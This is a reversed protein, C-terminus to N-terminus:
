SIAKPNKPATSRPQKPTSPTRKEIKIIKIVADLEAAGIGLRQANSNIPVAMMAAPNFLM